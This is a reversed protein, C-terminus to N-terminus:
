AGAHADQRAFRQFGASGINKRLQIIEDIEDDSLAYGYIRQYQERFMARLRSEMQDPYMLEALWRLMLSREAFGSMAPWFLPSRYVRRHAIAALPRLEPEAYFDEPDADAASRDSGWSPLVIIDPDMVYLEEVSWAGALPEYSRTVDIGGLIPIQKAVLFRWSIAWYAGGTRGRRVIFMRPRHARAGLAAAERSVAKRNAADAAILAEARQTAGAIGAVRRWQETMAEDSRDHNEMMVVPLGAKLYADSMWSWALLADPGLRLLSEPDEIEGSRDRLEHIASTSFIRDLVTLRIPALSYDSAAIVQGADGTLTLWQDLVPPIIIARRAPAFGCVDQPRCGRTPEEISPPFMARLLCVLTLGFWGTATRAGAWNV